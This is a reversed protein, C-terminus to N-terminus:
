FPIDSDFDDMAQPKPQKQPAQQRSQQPASQQGGSDDRKGILTVDNVRCTLQTKTEGSDDTWERTGLEGTVAVQQGKMLYQVLGGSARSGWLACDVWLTQEKDGFGSKVAVTFNCVDTGGVNGTRCDRGLNGTASFVNM